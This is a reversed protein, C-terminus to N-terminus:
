FRLSVGAVAGGTIPTLALGTLQPRTSPTSTVSTVPSSADYIAFGIAGTIVGGGSLCFLATAGVLSPTDNLQLGEILLMIGPAVAGITLAAVVGLNVGVRQGRDLAAGSLVVDTRGPGVDVWGHGHEGWHGRTYRGTGM